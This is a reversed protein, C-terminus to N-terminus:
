QITVPYDFVGGDTATTLRLVFSGPATTSIQCRYDSSMTVTACSISAPITACTTKQTMSGQRVGLRWAAIGYTKGVGMPQTVTWGTPISGETRVEDVLGPGLILPIEVTGSATVAKLTAMGTTNNTKTLTVRYNGQGSTVAINSSAPGEVSWTANLNGNAANKCDFQATVFSADRVILNDTVKVGNSDFRQITPAAAAVTVSVSATKGTLISTAKVDITGLGTGKLCAHKGDPAASMLNGTGSGGTIAWTCNDNATFAVSHLLPLSSSSATVTLTAVTLTTWEVHGDAFSAILKGGHRNDFKNGNVGDATVWTGEIPPPIEGLAIGDLTTNYVYAYAVKDGATPCRFVGGDINLSGWVTAFAPLIEEHDQAYMLAATVIQRQNNLCQTQRAKERAKAFVPFLIAALVAIIAIVVLLEILTFGRTLRNHM